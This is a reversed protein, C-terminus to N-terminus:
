WNNKSITVGVIPFCNQFHSNGVFRGSSEFFRCGTTSLLHRDMKFLLAGGVMKSLLALEVKPPGEFTRPLELFIEFRVRHKYNLM